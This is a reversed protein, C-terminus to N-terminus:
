RRMRAWPGIGSEGFATRIVVQLRTPAPERSGFNYGLPSDGGAVARIVGPERVRPNYGLPSEGGAVATCTWAPGVRGNYGM